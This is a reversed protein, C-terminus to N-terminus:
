VLGTEDEIRRVALQHAERILQRLQQDQEDTFHAPVDVSVRRRPTRPQKIKKTTVGDVKDLRVSLTKYEDYDLTVTEPHGYLALSLLNSHPLKGTSARHALSALSQPSTTARDAEPLQQYLCKGIASWNRTRLHM